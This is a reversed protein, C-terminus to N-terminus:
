TVNIDNFMITGTYGIVVFVNHGAAYPNIGGINIAAPRRINIINGYGGVVSAQGCGNANSHVTNASRWGSSQGPFSSLTTPNYWQLQISLPKNSSSVTGSTGLRIVFTETASSFTFRLALYKTIGSTTELMGTYPNLTADNSSLEEFRPPDVVVLESLAPQDTGNNRIRIMETVAGITGVGLGGSKRPITIENINPNGYFGTIITSTPPTPFPINYEVDSGSTPGTSGMANYVIARLTTSPLPGTPGGTPCVYDWNKNTYPVGYPSSASGSFAPALGSEQLGSYTYLLSADGLVITTKTAHADLASSLEVNPKGSLKDFFYLNELNLKSTPIRIRSGATAYRQGSIWIFTDTTFTINGSEAPNLVVNPGISALPDGQLNITGTRIANSGPGTGGAYNTNANLIYPTQGSGVGTFTHNAIQVCGGPNLPNNNYLGTNTITNVPGTADNLALTWDYRSSNGFLRANYLVSNTSTVYWPEIPQIDNVYAFM